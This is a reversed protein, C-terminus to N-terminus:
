LEDATGVAAAAQAGSRAADEHFGYGFYSGCFYTNRVGNLRFLEKQTDLSEFTYIPHAYAMGAIVKNPAIAEPPNLTVLYDHRTHLQQLRNMHYTLTVPAHSAARASRFFNWSAWARRSTPMWRTDTHLYTRNASYRWAGLLRREEDSPDSLLALAEDAHAAIVVRDFSHTRGGSEQLVVGGAGRRVAAIAADRRVEGPFQDLFARVYTHSGGAVYYWQPHRRITLLGHNNFFLAFTLMPFHDVELEPASWIAAVMPFLYQERFRSSFRYRRLFQGLTMGALKGQQLRRLVSRNFAMIELLLFWHRLDVLNNRQAFLSDLNRSGYQLGTKECYYSFSMDSKRVSVGLRQFFRTLLPYTRDNMVIFGTDVPTGADPGDPIVVTHTHGGIYSNKEFLTVHHSNQLLYAATIGAVGGGVVAIRLKRDKAM